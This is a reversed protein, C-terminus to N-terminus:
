RRTPWCTPTSTSSSRTISARLAPTSATTFPLRRSSRWRTPRSSLWPRRNERSVGRTPARSDGRKYLAERAATLAQMLMAGAEPELRGRVVVTGDADPYVHLARSAHRSATERAEAQRDVCRWGRVIREVHEA